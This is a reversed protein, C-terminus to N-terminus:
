DLSLMVFSTGKEEFYDGVYRHDYINKEGVEGIILVIAEPNGYLQFAEYM